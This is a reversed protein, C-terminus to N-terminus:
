GIKSRIDRGIDRGGERGGRDRERERGGHKSGSGYTVLGVDQTPTGDSIM